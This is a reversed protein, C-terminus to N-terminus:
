LSGLGEDLPCRVRGGRCPTPLAAIFPDLSHEGTELVVVLLAGHSTLILGVCVLAGIVVEAM